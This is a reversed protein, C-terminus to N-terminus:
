SPRRRVPKGTPLSITSDFHKEAYELKKRDTETLDDRVPQFLEAVRAYDRAMWAARAEKHVKQLAQDRQFKMSEHKDARELENYFNPDGELFPEGYKQVLRAVKPVISCVGERDSVQFMTSQGFGESNWVEKGARRVIYDLGYKLSRDLRGIQVGIEFSGRGHYVNVLVTASEFHVLTDEALLAKFGKVQLFAFNELVAEKFGLKWRNEGPEFQRM